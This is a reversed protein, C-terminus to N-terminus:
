IRLCGYEYCLLLMVCLRKVNSDVLHVVVAVAFCMPSPSQHVLAGRALSLSDGLPNCLTSSDPPENKTKMRMKKKKVQFSIVCFREFRHLGSISCVAVSRPLSFCVLASWTQANAVFLSCAPRKYCFFPSLWQM